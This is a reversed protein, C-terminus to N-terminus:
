AGARDVEPRASRVCIMESAELTNLATVFTPWRREDVGVAVLSARLSGTGDLSEVVAVLDPHKLFSLKRNGFHYALAGFREPRLSVQPDLTYPADLDVPM